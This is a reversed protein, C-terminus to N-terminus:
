RLEHITLRKGSLVAIRNGNSSCAARVRNDPAASTDQWSGAPLNALLAGSPIAYMAVSSQRALVFRGTTGCFAGDVLGAYAEADELKADLRGRIAATAGDKVIVDKPASENFSRNPFEIVWAGNPSRLSSFAFVAILRGTKLDVLKRGSRNNLFEILGDVTVGGGFSGGAAIYESMRRAALTRAPWNYVTVTMPQDARGDESYISILRGDGSIAADPGNDDAGYWDSPLDQLRGNNMDLLRFRVRTGSLLVGLLATPDAPSVSFVRAGSEIDVSNTIAASRANYTLARKGIAYLLEGNRSFLLQAGTDAATTAEVTATVRLRQVAVTSGTWIFFAAFLVTPTLLKM